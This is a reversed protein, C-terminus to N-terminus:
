GQGAGAVKSVRNGGAWEWRAKAFWVSDTALFAGDLRVDNALPLLMPMIIFAGGMGVNGECRGGSAVRGWDDHACFATFTHDEQGKDSENSSTSENTCVQCMKVGVLQSGKCHLRGFWQVHRRM